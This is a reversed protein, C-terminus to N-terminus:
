ERPLHCEPLRQHRFALGMMENAARNGTIHRCQADTCIWVYAPLADLLQKLEESRMRLEEAGARQNKLMKGLALGMEDRDSIPTIVITDEGEAIRCAADTIQKLWTAMEGFSQQLQGVEDGRTAAPVPVALDGRSISRATRSLVELPRTINRTLFLWILCLSLVLLPAGVLMTQNMAQIAAKDAQRYSALLRSESDNIEDLALRIEDMLQKGRGSGIRPLAAELGGDRRLRITGQQWDIKAKTLERVHELIRAQSPNDRLANAARDLDFSYDRIAQSYPELYEDKGTLIYGRQGTEADQLHTLLRELDLQLLTSSELRADARIMRQSATQVALGQVFILVLGLAM